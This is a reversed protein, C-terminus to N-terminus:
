SRGPRAERREVSHLPRPRGPGEVGASERSPLNEAIGGVTSNPIATNGYVVEVLHGPPDAQVRKDAASSQPKVIEMGECACVFAALSKGVSVTFPVTSARMPIPAPVASPEATISLGGSPCSRTTGLDLLKM